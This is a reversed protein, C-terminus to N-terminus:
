HLSFQPPPQAPVESQLRPQSLPHPTPQVPVDIQVTAQRVPQKMQQWPEAVHVRFQVSAVTVSHAPSSLV